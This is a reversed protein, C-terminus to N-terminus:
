KNSLMLADALQVSEWFLRDFKSFNFIPDCRHSGMPEVAPVGSLRGLMAAKDPTVEPDWEFWDLSIQKVIKSHDFLIKSVAHRSFEHSSWKRKTMHGATWGWHIIIGFGSGCHLFKCLLSVKFAREVGSVWGMSRIHLVPNVYLIDHNWIPM